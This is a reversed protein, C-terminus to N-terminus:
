AIGGAKGLARRLVGLQGAHYAEHFTLQSFQIGLPERADPEFLGPVEKSWLEADAVELKEVLQGQSAELIRRLEALPVCESGPGISESGRAYLKARM